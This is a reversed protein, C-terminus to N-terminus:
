QKIEGEETGQKEFNEIYDRTSQYEPLETLNKVGLYELLKTTTQYYVGRADNENGPAREILGRVLLNRVITSSSVGRIYDIESRKIPGRYAVISITELGARGLDRSLEEKAVRDILESHEPSTVLVVEDSNQVLSIGTSNLKERALSIATTVEETSKSLIEALKKVSLPEGKWFLLAIIQNEVTTQISNEM